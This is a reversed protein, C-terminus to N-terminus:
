PNIDKWNDVLIIDSHKVMHKHNHPYKIGYTKFGHKIGFLCNEYSDEVFIKTNLNENNFLSLHNDKEKSSNVYIIKTFIDPFHLNINLNRNQMITLDTGCATSGIINYGNQKFESFRLSANPLSHLSKFTDSNNFENILDKSIAPTVKLWNSLDWVKPHGLLKKGLRKEAFLRFSPLWCLVVDDIDTVLLKM